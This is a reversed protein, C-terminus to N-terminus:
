VDGSLGHVSFCYASHVFRINKAFCRNEVMAHDRSLYKITCKRNIDIGIANFVKCQTCSYFERKNRQGRSNKGTDRLECPKSCSTNPIKQWLSEQTWM